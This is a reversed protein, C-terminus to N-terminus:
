MLKFYSIKLTKGMPQLKKMINKAMHYTQFKSAARPLFVLKFEAARPYIRVYRGDDSALLYGQEVM